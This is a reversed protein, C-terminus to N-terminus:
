ARPRSSMARPRAEQVLRHPLSELSALMVFTRSGIKVTDLLGDRALQFATTRGIGHQACALVLPAFSPTIAVCQEGRNTNSHM